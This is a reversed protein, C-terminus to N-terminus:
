DFVGFSWSLGCRVNFEDVVNRYGSLRWLSCPRHAGMEPLVQPPKLRLTPSTLVDKPAQQSLRVRLPGVSTARGADCPCALTRAARGRGDPHTSCPSVGGEETYIHPRDMMTLAPQSTCPVFPKRYARPTAVPM